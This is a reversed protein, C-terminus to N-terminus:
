GFQDPSSNLFKFYKELSDKQTKFRDKLELFDSPQTYIHKFNEVLKSVKEARSKSEM